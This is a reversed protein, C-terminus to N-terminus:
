DKMRSNLGQLYNENEIPLPPPGPGFGLPIFMALSTSITTVELVPGSLCYASRISLRM